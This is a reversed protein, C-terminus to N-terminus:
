YIEEVIIVGSGGAGGAKDGGAGGAGGAGVQFAYSSAPTTIILEVYEGAGGGGGSGVKSNGDTGGGGSGTNAAGPLGVNAGHRGLGAGGFPNVGGSGPTAGGATGDYNTSGGAGGDIRFSALGAGGTGGLGGTGGVGNVLGSGGSGGVATITGFSTTSGGTGSAGGNWSGGAGGGGGSMRVRLQRAGVPTNYTGSGSLFTQRTPVPVVGAFVFSAYNWLLTYRCGLPMGINLTIQSASNITYDQGSTLLSGGVHVELSGTEFTAPSISIVTQGESLAAGEARGRSGNGTIQNQANLRQRAM